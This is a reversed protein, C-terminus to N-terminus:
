GIRDVLRALLLRDDVSLESKTLLEEEVYFRLSAKSAAVVALLQNIVVEADENLSGEIARIQGAARRLRGVLKKQQEAKM